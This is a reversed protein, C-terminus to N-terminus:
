SRYALDQSSSVALSRQWADLDAHRTDADLHRQQVAVEASAVQQARDELDATAQSHEDAAQGPM